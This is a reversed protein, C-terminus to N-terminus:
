FTSVLECALSHIALSFLVLGLPYYNSHHFQWFFLHASTHYVALSRRRLMFFATVDSVTSLMTAIWSSYFYYIVKLVQHFFSVPLM